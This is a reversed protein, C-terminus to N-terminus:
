KGLSPEPQWLYLFMPLKSRGLGPIDIPIIDSQLPTNPTIAYPTLAPDNCRHLIMAPAGPSGGLMAAIHIADDLYGITDILGQEVAAPATVIRGDFVSANDPTHLGRGQRVTNRFREHFSKAADELIMRAEESMERRASTGRDAYQGAKITRNIISYQEMTDSLNYLNMIVGISGTITTPHAVIQDAATALYYAGGTGVDMFCAVVPLGTRTKFNSLDNWMIDTATVSGGPSNIRLVVACYCSDAAVRDLKERFMSVPNEGRSSMGTMNRNLLVGDIDILAVKAASGNGPVVPMDMVPSGDQIPSVETYVHSFTEVSPLQRCGCLAVCLVLM